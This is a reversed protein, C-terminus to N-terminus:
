RDLRKEQPLEYKKGKASEIRTDNLLFCHMESMNAQFIADRTAKGTTVFAQFVRMQLDSWFM